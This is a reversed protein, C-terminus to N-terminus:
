TEEMHRIWKRIPTKDSAGRFEKPEPVKLERIRLPEKNIMATLRAVEAALQRNLAQQEEVPIQPGVAPQPNVVPAAQPVQHVQPVQQQMPQGQAPQGAPQQIPQQGVGEAPNGGDPAPPPNDPNDAPGSM